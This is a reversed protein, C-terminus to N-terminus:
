GRSTPLREKLEEDTFEVQEGALHRATKEDCEHLAGSGTDYLYYHEHYNFIHVM